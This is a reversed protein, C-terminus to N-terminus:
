KLWIAIYGLWGGLIFCSFIKIFIFCIYYLVSIKGLLSALTSPIWLPGFIFLSIEFPFCFVIKSKTITNALYPSILHRSKKTLQICLIAWDFHIIFSFGLLGILLTVWDHRVRQLGTSQLGGPEEMWPIRSAFISSHTAM